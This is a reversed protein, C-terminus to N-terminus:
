YSIPSAAFRAAWWTFDLLRVHLGTRSGVRGQWSRHARFDPARWTLSAPALLLPILLM